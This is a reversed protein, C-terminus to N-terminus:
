QCNSLVQNFYPQLSNLLLPAAAYLLLHEADKVYMSRQFIPAFRSRRPYPLESQM